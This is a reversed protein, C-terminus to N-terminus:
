EGMIDRVYRFLTRASSPPKGASIEREANRILQRLHQSDAAPYANIFESVAIDGESLLQDRWRELRHFQVAAHQGHNHLADFAAQIPTADIKRMVKGIYQLQRKHAGREPIARAAIVANLLNEPMPITALQSAPLKVLAEGLEQLATMDRKRQSKSKQEAGTDEGNDEITDETSM